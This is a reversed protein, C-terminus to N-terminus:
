GMAFTAVNEENLTLPCKKGKNLEKLVDADKPPWENNDVKKDADDASQKNGM